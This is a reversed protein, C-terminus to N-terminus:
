PQAELWAEVTAWLAPGETSSWQHARHMEALRRLAAVPVADLAAEAVEWCERFFEKQETMAALDHLRPALAAEAVEACRLLELVDAADYSNGRIKVELEADM